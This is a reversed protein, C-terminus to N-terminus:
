NSRAQSQRRTADGDIERRGVQGLFTAMVIQRDCKPQHGCDAGDRVIRQGPERHQAFEAEVTRDRRNGAHQRGRDPRIGAAVSQDTRSNASRFRGPGARFDLNDGRAGQDLEGIM